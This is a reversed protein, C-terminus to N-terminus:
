RLDFIDLAGFNGTLMTREIIHPAIAKSFKKPRTKAPLDLVTNLAYVFFQYRHTGFTPHPGGWGPKGWTTTGEIAGHPLYDSGIETTTPPLNWVIWHYFGGIFPADPSYCVVALSQTGDPIDSIALPPRQNGGFRSYIKPIKANNKFAPSTVKMTITYRISTMSALIIEILYCVFPIRIHSLALIFWTM